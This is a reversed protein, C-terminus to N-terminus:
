TREEGSLEEVVCFGNDQIGQGPSQYMGELVQRYRECVLNRRVKLTPTIEQHNFDSSLLTFRKIRQFSTLNAQLRDVRERILRLIQAHKVMECSDAFQLANERAFAELKELHPVLLATLYPKRDGYVM